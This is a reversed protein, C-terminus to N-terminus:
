NKTLKVLDQRVSDIPFSKSLVQSIKSARAEEINKPKIFGSEKVYNGTQEWDQAYAINIAQWDLKTKIKEMGLNFYKEIYEQSKTENLENCRRILTMVNKCYQRAAFIKELAMPVSYDVEDNMLNNLTTQAAEYEQNYLQLSEM